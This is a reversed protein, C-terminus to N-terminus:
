AHAPAHDAREFLTKAPRLAFGHRRRRGLYVICGLSLLLVSGFSPLPRTTVLVGYRTGTALPMAAASGALVPLAGGAYPALSAAGAFQLADVGTSPPLEIVPVGASSAGAAGLLLATLVVLQYARM